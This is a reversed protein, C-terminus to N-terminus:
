CVTPLSTTEYPVTHLITGFANKYISSGYKRMPSCFRLKKHPLSNIAKRDLPSTEKQSAPEMQHFRYTKIEYTLLSGLLSPFDDSKTVLSAGQLRCQTSVVERSFYDRLAFTPVHNWIIKIEHPFSHM